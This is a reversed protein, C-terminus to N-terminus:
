RRGRDTISSNGGLSILNGNSFLMTVGAKKGTMVQDGQVLQTGFVVKLAEDGGAKNLYVSGKVDSIVALASASSQANNHRPILFLIFLVFSFSICVRPM